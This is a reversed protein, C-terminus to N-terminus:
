SIARLGEVNGLATQQNEIYLFFCCLFSPDRKLSQLLKDMNDKEALINEEGHNENSTITSM